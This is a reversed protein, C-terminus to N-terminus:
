PLHETLVERLAENIMDEVKESTMTAGTIADVENPGREDTGPLIRIGPREDPGVTSKGEFQRRFNESVIEGGLGPTEEHYVFALGRITSLDPSLSIFGHIPGWLGQGSFPVAVAPEVDIHETPVLEYLTLEAHEIERVNRRYIERVQEAPDARDFPVSLVELIGRFRDAAENAEQYPATFRGVGTLVLACVMALVFSYTVIYLNAKM